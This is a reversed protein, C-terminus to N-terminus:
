PTPLCYDCDAPCSDTPPINPNEHMTNQDEMSLANYQTDVKYGAYEEFLAADRSTIEVNGKM